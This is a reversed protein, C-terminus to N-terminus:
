EKANFEHFVVLRDSLETTILGLTAGDLGTCHTRVIDSDGDPRNTWSSQGARSRQQLEQMNLACNMMKLGTNMVQLVFSIMKLFSFDMMKNFILFAGKTFPPAQM